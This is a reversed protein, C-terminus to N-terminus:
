EPPHRLRWENGVRLWIEPNRHLDVTEWFLAPEIDLYDLTEGLFAEPPEGDYKRVLKLAEERSMHGRQIQRSTDRIARGFGFKIYQLYYYFNDIKDDLSDFDTFTGETRGGSARRFDIKDRIYEYNQKIDWPFFYAFYMATVGVEEVDSVEPYLYPGLDRKKIVDDVWNEPHDGIQHELVETIDRIKKHEDSLVRGGYESEGHEAYFILPIDFNVAIQVPIANVGADWHVKPNGREVFFRRALHRSVKQDPRVMIHDFGARLLAERNHEGIENPILPSFTVLLPNLGLEFKLRYAIASSDKGGSWPVICDYPGRKPRLREVYSEFELRRANWDIDAKEAAAHCANCIGEADFEVRPRTDPM